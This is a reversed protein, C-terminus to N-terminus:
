KKGFLGIVGRVFNVLLNDKLPKKEVHISWKGKPDRDIRVHTQLAVIALTFLAIDVGGISFSATEYDKRLAKIADRTGPDEAYLALAQRALDGESVTADAPAIAFADSLAHQLEPDAAPAQVGSRMHARVLTALLQKATADNLTAIDADM